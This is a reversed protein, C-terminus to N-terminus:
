SSPRPARATASSHPLSLLTRDLSAYRRAVAQGPRGAARSATM